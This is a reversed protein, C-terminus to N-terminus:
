RLALELSVRRALVSEARGVLGQEFRTQVRIQCDFYMALLEQNVLANQGRAAFLELDHQCRVRQTRHPLLHLIPHLNRVRLHASLSEVGHKLPNVSTLTLHAGIRRM